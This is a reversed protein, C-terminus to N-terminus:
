VSNKDILKSLKEKLNKIKSYNNYFYIYNLFILDVYLLTRVSGLKVSLAINM